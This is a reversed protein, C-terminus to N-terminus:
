LNSNFHGVFPTTEWLKEPRGQPSQGCTLTLDLPMALGIRQASGASYNMHYFGTFLHLFFLIQLQTNDRIVQLALNKKPFRRRAVIMPTLGGAISALGLGAAAPLWPQFSSCRKIPVPSDHFKIPSTGSGLSVVLSPCINIYKNIYIYINIYIYLYISITRKVVLTLLSEQCIWKRRGKELWGLRVPRMRACAHSDPLRLDHLSQFPDSLDFDLGRSRM